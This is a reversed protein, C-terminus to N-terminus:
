LNLFLGQQDQVMTDEGKVLQYIRSKGSLVVEVTMNASPRLTLGKRDKWAICLDGAATPFTGSAAETLDMRPEVLIKRYGPEVPRLGFIEATIEYIPSSSWGHCDSRFM